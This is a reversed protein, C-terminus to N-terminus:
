QLAEMLDGTLASGDTLEDVDVELATGDGPMMMRVKTRVSQEGFVFANVPRERRKAAVEERTGFSLAREPLGDRM